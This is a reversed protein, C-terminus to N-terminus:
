LARATTTERKVCVYLSKLAIFEGVAAGRGAPHILIAAAREALYFETDRGHIM